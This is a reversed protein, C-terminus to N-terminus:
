PAFGVVGHQREAERSCAGIASLPLAGRQVEAWLEPGERGAAAAFGRSRRWAAFTDKLAALFDPDPPNARTWAPHVEEWHEAACREAAEHQRKADAATATALTPQTLEFVKKGTVLTLVRGEVGPLAERVCSAYAEAAAAYAEPTIETRELKATASRAGAALAAILGVGEDSPLAWSRTISRLLRRASAAGPSSVKRM